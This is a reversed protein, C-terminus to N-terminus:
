SRAPSRDPEALVPLDEEGVAVVDADVGDIQELIERDGDFLRLGESWRRTWLKLVPVQVAM